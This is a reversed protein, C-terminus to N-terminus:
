QDARCQADVFRRLTESQYGGLARSRGESRADTSTRRPSWDLRRGLIAPYAMGPRSACGGQLISTGYFVIPKMGPQRPSAMELASVNPVGIKMENVGNYLPLYLVYERRAPKLGKVLIKEEVAKAPRGNGVWHWRGREKVYLDLGSVGTAPMHAM